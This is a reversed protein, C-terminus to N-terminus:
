AHRAEYWKIWKDHLDEPVLDDEVLVDWVCEPVYSQAKDKIDINIEDVTAQTIAERDFEPLDEDEEMMEEMFEGVETKVFEVTIREVTM